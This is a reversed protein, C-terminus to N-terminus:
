KRPLSGWHLKRRLIDFFNHDEFTVLRISYEGKEIRIQTKSTVEINQHGDIVLSAKVDSSRIELGIISSVPVVTPRATLSHPCLPNLIMSELSPAVIPGWASLSYATSGTPTAIIIGDAYYTSFYSGDITADFQIIRPGGGRSLVIDNLAFYESKPLDGSIGVKLVMRSEITYQGALVQEMKHYLNEVGVEALFGLGGLNIGLIPKELKGVLRAATLMTGDGGMAIVCDSKGSLVTVPVVQIHPEKFQILDQLTQDIMVQQKRSLLWEIFPVVVDIVRNKKINAIIGFKMM